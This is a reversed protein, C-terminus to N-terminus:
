IDTGEKYPIMSLYLIGNDAAFNAVKNEIEIISNAMIIAKIQM